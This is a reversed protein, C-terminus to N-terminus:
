SREKEREERGRGRGGGEGEKREVRERYSFSPFSHGEGGKRESAREEREREGRRINEIEAMMMERERRSGSIRKLPASVDGWERGERGEVGVGRKERGGEKKQRERM